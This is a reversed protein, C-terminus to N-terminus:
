DTLEFWGESMVEDGRLYRMVYFGPEDFLNSTNVRRSFVSASSVRPRVEQELLFEESDTQPDYQYFHIVMEASGAPETMQASITMREGLEFVARADTVRLNNNVNTGFTVYGPGERVEVEFPTPEPTPEPTPSPTPPATPSAPAPSPSVIPPPSVIAGATPTPSTAPPALPSGGLFNLAGIGLAAVAGLVVVVGLLRGVLGGEASQDRAVTPGYVVGQRRPRRNRSVVRMTVGCPEFTCRVISADVGHYGILAWGAELEAKPTAM